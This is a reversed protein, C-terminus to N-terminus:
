HQTITKVKGQMKRVARKEIQRVGETTIGMKNSLAQLTEPPETLFRARVVLQEKESLAGMAAQLWEKQKTRYDESLTQEEPSEREDRITDLITDERDPGSPQDISVTRWFQRNAACVGELCKQNYALAAQMGRRTIRVVSATRHVYQRVYARVWFAVYTSFRLGREVSFTQMARMVGMMGESMLDDADVGYYAAYQRAITRVLRVQSQMILDRARTSGTQTWNHFAAQEQEKSIPASSSHRLLYFLSCPMSFVTYWM